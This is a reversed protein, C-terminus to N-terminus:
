IGTCPLECNLRGGDQRRTKHHRDSLRRRQQRIAIREASAVGAGSHTHRVTTVGLSQSISPVALMAVAVTVAATSQVTSVPHM